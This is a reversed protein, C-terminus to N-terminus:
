VMPNALLWDIFDLGATVFAPMTRGPTGLDQHSFRNKSPKYYDLLSKLFNTVTDDVRRMTNSQLFFTRMILYM